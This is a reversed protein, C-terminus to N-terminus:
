SIQWQPYLEKYRNRIEFLFARPITENVFFVEGNRKTAYGRFRVIGLAEITMAVIRDRVLIKDYLVWKFPAGTQLERIRREINNTFGIKFCTKTENSLIYVFYDNMYGQNDNCNDNSWCYYIKDM